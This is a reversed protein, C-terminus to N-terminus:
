PNVRKQRRGMSCFNAKGSCLIEPFRSVGSTVTSTM